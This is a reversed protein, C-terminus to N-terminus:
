TIEGQADSATAPEAMQAALPCKLDDLGVPDSATGRGAPIPKVGLRAMELEVARVLLAAAARYAPVADADVVAARFAGVWRGLHDQLFKGMAERTIQAQEQKRRDLAYATKLYLLSMFELETGLHDPPSAAEAPPGFGFAIYFGNIDALDMPQGAYRMGDGYGGERLAVPASGLFLRSHEYALEDFSASRWATGLARLPAALGAPLFQRKHALVAGVVERRVNAVLCADPFSFVGALTRYLSGLAVAEDRGVRRRRSHRSTEWARAEVAPGRGIMNTM